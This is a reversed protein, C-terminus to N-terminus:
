RLAEVALMASALLFAVVNALIAIAVLRRGM